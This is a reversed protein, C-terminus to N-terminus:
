PAGPPLLSLLCPRFDFLLPFSLREVPQKFPQRRTAGIAEIPRNDQRRHPVSTDTGRLLQRRACSRSRPAARLCPTQGVERGTAHQLSNAPVASARYIRESVTRCASTFHDLIRVCRGAIAARVIRM